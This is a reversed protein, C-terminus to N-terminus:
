IFLLFEGSKNNEIESRSYYCVKQVDCSLFLRLRNAFDLSSFFSLFIVSLFLLLHTGQFLIVNLNNILLWVQCIIYPLLFQHKETMLGLFLFVLATADIVVTSITFLDWPFIFSFFFLCICMIITGILHLVGIIWSGTRSHISGCCCRYNRSFYPYRVNSGKM